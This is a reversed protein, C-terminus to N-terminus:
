WVACKVGGNIRMSTRLREWCRGADVNMSKSGVRAAVVDRKEKQMSVTEVVKGGGNCDMSARTTKMKMRENDAVCAGCVKGSAREVHRNSDTSHRVFENSM